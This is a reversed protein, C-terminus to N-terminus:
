RCTADCSEVNYVCLWVHICVFTCVFACAGAPDHRDCRVVGNQSVVGLQSADGTPRPESISGEVSLLEKWCRGTYMYPHIYTHIYTHMYLSLKQVCVYLDPGGCITIGELMSRHVHISTHICTHICTHIHTCISTLLGEYRYM